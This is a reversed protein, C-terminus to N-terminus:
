FFADKRHKKAPQKTIFVTHTDKPLIINQPLEEIKVPEPEPEEIVVPESNTIVVPEPEEIVVPKPEEIVVPEYNTIVIPQPEEVPIPEYNTIVVPKPEEVVVPEYNTIVIPQPEEEHIDEVESEEESEEVEEESEEVEEESEEIEKESEEVEEDSEEVEEESEEVEEDSEEVEEESEEIEKESEEVEEESEEIEEEKENMLEAFNTVVWDMPITERIVAKIKKKLIVECHYLNNQREISRALHYFLYPRKWLDRAMHILCRHIFSESSPVKLKIKSRKDEPLGLLIIKITLIYVTKLLKPFYNCKTYTIVNNYVKDVQLQNWDPIKAVQQQFLKLINKTTCEKSALADDYLGQFTKIIPEYLLEFLHDLYEEKQDRLLKISM